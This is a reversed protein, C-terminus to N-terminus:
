NHAERRQRLKEKEAIEKKSETFDVAESPLPYEDFESLIEMIGNLTSPCPPNEILAKREEAALPTGLHNLYLELVRQGFSSEEGYPNSLLKKIFDRKKNELEEEIKEDINNKLLHIKKLGENINKLLKAFM